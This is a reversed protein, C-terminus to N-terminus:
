RRIFTASYRIMSDAHGAFRDQEPQPQVPSLLSCGIAKCSRVFRVSQMKTGRFSVSFQNGSKQFEVNGDPIGLVRVLKQLNEERFASRAPVSWVQDVKDPIAVPLQMLNKGPVAQPGSAPMNSFSADALESVDIAGLKRYGPAGVPESLESPRSATSAVRQPLTVPEESEAMENWILVGVAGLIAVLAAVRLLVMPRSYLNFRHKHEKNKLQVGALIREAIDPPTERELAAHLVRTLEKLEELHKHCHPCQRVHALTKQDGCEGDYVASLTEPDPCKMNEPMPSEM